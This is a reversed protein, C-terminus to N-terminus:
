HPDTDNTLIGIMGGGTGPRDPNDQGAVVNKKIIHPDTDNTAFVGIATSCTFVLALFLCVVTKKM